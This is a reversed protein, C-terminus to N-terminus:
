LQLNGPSVSYIAITNGQMIKKRKTKKHNEKNM